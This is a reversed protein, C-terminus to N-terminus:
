KKCNYVKAKFKYTHEPGFLPRNKNDVTKEQEVYYSDGVQQQELITKELYDYADPLKYVTASSNLNYLFECNTPEVELRTLGNGTNGTTACAVLGSVVILSMYKKM